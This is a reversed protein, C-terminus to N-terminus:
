PHRGTLPKRGGVGDRTCGGSSKPRKAGLALTILSCSAWCFVDSVGYAMFVLGPLCFWAVSVFKLSFCYFSVVVFSCWWPFGRFVSSFLYFCYFVM